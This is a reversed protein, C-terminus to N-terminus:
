NRETINKLKDKSYLFNYEKDLSDYLKKAENFKLNLKEEENKIQLIKIENIIKELEIITDINKIKKNLEIKKHNSINKYYKLAMIYYKKVEGLKELEYIKLFNDGQLELLKAQLEYFELEKAINYFENFAKIKEDASHFKKSYIIKNELSIYLEKKLELLKLDIKLINEKSEKLQLAIKKAESYSSYAKNNQNRKLYIDGVKINAGMATQLEELKLDVDKYTYTKSKFNLNRTKKSQTLFITLSIFVSTIIISKKTIKRKKLKIYKKLPSSSYKKLIKRKHLFLSIGKLKNNNDDFYNIKLYIIKEIQIKKELNKENARLILLDDLKKTMLFNEFAKQANSNRTTEFNLEKM